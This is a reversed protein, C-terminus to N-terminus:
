FVAGSLIDGRQVAARPTGLLVGISDGKSAVQLTKQFIEIGAVVVLQEADQRRIAITDGVRLTGREVRGTAVLGRGDITFVDDVVMKFFPDSAM